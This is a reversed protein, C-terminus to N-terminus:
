QTFRSRICSLTIVGWSANVLPVERTRLTADNYRIFISSRIGTGASQRTRDTIFNKFFLHRPISLAPTTKSCLLARGCMAQHDICRRCSNLQSTNLWGGYLGSRAGLSKLIKKCTLFKRGSWRWRKWLPLPASILTVTNAIGPQLGTRCLSVFTQGM